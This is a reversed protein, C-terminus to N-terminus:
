AEELTVKRPNRPDPYDLKFDVKYIRLNANSRHSHLLHQILRNDKCYIEWYVGDWNHFIVKAAKCSSFAEEGAPNTIAAMQKLGIIGQEFLIATWDDSVGRGYSELVSAPMMGIKHETYGTRDPLTELAHAWYEEGYAAFPESTNEVFVYDGVAQYLCSFIFDFDSRNDELRGHIFIPSGSRGEVKKVSARYFRLGYIMTNEENM